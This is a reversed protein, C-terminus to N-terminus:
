ATGSLEPNSVAELVAIDRHGCVIQEILIHQEILRDRIVAKQPIIPGIRVRVALWVVERHDKRIRVGEGISRVVESAIRISCVVRSQSPYTVPLLVLFRISIVVLKVDHRSLLRM